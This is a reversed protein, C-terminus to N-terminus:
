SGRLSKSAIAQQIAREIKPQIAQRSYEARVLQYAAEALKRGLSPNSWVQCASAVIEDPTNRILLHKGDIANIGEAGKATTIVPCGSAFAELIKLRTGGGQFLPAVMLSASAFYSRVDPVWGTIIIGPEAEAMEKMYNVPKQGVLLLRCNPYVKRLQPYIEEILIKAAEQNPLYYFTGTFILNYETPELEELPPDQKLRVRQYSMVDVTNPIVCIKSEQGYIEALLRADNQSCAWTGDTQAIFDREIFKVREYELQPKIEDKLHPKLRLKISLNQQYVDIEVNHNDFITYCPYRKVIPLYLYIWLEEFIVLDPQFTNIFDELKQGAAHSYYSHITRDIRLDTEPQIPQSIYEYHWLAIGPPAIAEELEFWTISFFAVPGCDMLVNINQWNRLPAGRHPPYVTDSTVILSRLPEM